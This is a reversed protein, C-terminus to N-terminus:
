ELGVTVDWHEIINYSENEDNVVDESTGLYKGSITNLNAPPKKNKLYAM